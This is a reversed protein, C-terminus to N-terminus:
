NLQNQTFNLFHLIKIEDNEEYYTRKCIAVYLGITSIDYVLKTPLQVDLDYYLIHIQNYLKRVFTM